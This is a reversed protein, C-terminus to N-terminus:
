RALNIRACQGGSLSTGREGVQTLDGRPLRDLDRELACVKLVQRYKMEDHLQDFIVNERITGPFMWSRQSAYSITGNIKLDGASSPLEGLIVQV